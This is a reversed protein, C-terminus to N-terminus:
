LSGDLVALGDSRCLEKDCLLADGHHGVPLHENRYIERQPVQHHPVRGTARGGPLRFLLHEIDM